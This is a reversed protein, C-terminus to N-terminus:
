RIAGPGDTEDKVGLLSNVCTRFSVSGRHSVFANLCIRVSMSSQMQSLAWDKVPM